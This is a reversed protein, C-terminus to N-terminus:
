RGAQTSFPQYLFARFGFLLGFAALLLLTGLFLNALGRGWGVKQAPEVTM